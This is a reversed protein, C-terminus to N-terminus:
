MSHLIYDYWQCNVNPLYQWALGQTLSVMDNLRSSFKKAMGSYIPKTYFGSQPIESVDGHSWHFCYHSLVWYRPWHIRSVM